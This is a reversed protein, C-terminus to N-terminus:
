RGARCDLVSVGCAPRMPWSSHTLAHRTVPFVGFHVSVQACRAAEGGDMVLILSRLRM